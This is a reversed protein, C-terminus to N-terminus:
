GPTLLVRNGGNTVIFTADQLLKGDHFYFYHRRFGVYGGYSNKANCEVVQVWGCTLHDSNGQMACKFLEGVRLKMSDPDKLTQEFYARIQAEANAPPPGYDARAAAQPDVSACGSTMLGAGFAVCVLAVRLFHKPHM